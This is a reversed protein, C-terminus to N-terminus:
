ESKGMQKVVQNVYVSAGAALIGQTIGSFVLMMGGQWGTVDATAALYVTSLVIGCVGLLWPIHRDQVASKKLAVGVLYLVPILVILEPKILEKLMDYMM